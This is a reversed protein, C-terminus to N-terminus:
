FVPATWTLATGTDPSSAVEFTGGLKSARHQMNTMGNGPTRVSFGAGNDQVRVSVFGDEVSVSVRISDAGSHRVANSL